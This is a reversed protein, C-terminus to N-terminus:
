LRKTPVASISIDKLRDRLFDAMSVDMTIFIKSIDDTTSCSDLSDKIEQVYDKQSFIKKSNSTSEGTGSYASRLLTSNMSSLIDGSVRETKSAEKLYDNLHIKILTSLLKYKSKESEDTNDNFVTIKNLLLTILKVDRKMVAHDIITLKDTDLAYISANSQLLADVIEYQRYRAAMMLPTYNKHMAKADIHEPYNKILTNVLDPLNKEICLHLLTYGGIVSNPPIFAVLSDLLGPNLELSKQITFTSIIEIFDDYANRNIELFNCYANWAIMIKDVTEKNSVIEILNETNKQTTEQDLEPFYDVKKSAVCNINLLLYEKLLEGYPINSKEIQNIFSNYFGRVHHIPQIFPFRTSSLMESFSSNGSGAVMDSMAIFKEKDSQSTGRFEILTLTKGTEKEEGVIVKNKIKGDNEVLEIKTYGNAKLYNMYEQDKEIKEFHSLNAIIVVGDQKDQSKAIMLRSFLHSYKSDQIYGFAFGRSKVYKLADSSESGTIFEILNKNEMTEALIVKKEDTKNENCMLQLDKYFKLGATGQEAGMCTEAYLKPELSKYSYPKDMPGYEGRSQVMTTMNVSDLIALLEQHRHMYRALNIVLESDNILNIIEKNNAVIRNAIKENLFINDLEAWNKKLDDENRVMLIGNKKLDDPMLIEALIFKKEELISISKVQINKYDNFLNNLWVTFDIQNVYDGIGDWVNYSTTLITLPKGIERYHDDIKKLLSIILGAFAQDQGMRDPFKKNYYKKLDNELNQSEIERNNM